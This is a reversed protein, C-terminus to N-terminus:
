AVCGTPGAASGTATPGVIRSGTATSGTATTGTTRTGSSTSGASTSSRAQNKRDAHALAALRGVAVTIRSARATRGAAARRIEAAREHRRAAAYLEHVHEDMLAQYIQFPLM